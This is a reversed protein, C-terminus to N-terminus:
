LPNGWATQELLFVGREKEWKVVLILFLPLLHTPLTEYIIVDMLFPDMEAKDVAAGEAGCPAWPVSNGFSRGFVHVALSKSSWRQLRSSFFM